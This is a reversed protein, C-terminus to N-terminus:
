SHHKKIVPYEWLVVPNYPDTVDIALYTDGGGREGGVIITRWPWDKLQTSTLDSTSPSSTEQKIKSDFFVTYAAPALDVLFQHQCAGSLESWLDHERYEAIPGPLQLTYVGM